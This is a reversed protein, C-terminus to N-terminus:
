ATSLKKGVWGWFVTRLTASNLKTKWDDINILHEALHAPNLGGTNMLVLPTELEQMRNTLIKSFIQPLSDKTRSSRGSITLNEWLMPQAFKGPVEIEVSLKLPYVKDNEANLDGLILGTASADELTWTDNSRSISYILANTAREIVVLDGDRVQALRASPGNGQLVNAALRGTITVRMNGMAGPFRAEFRALANKITVRRGINAARAAVRIRPITNNAAMVINNAATRLANAANIINTATTNDTITKLATDLATSLNSISNEATDVAEVSTNLQPISAQAETTASAPLASDLVNNGAETGSQYASSVQERSRNVGDLLNKAEVYATDANGILSRIETTLEATVAAREPGDPPQINGIFSELQRLVNSSNGYDYNINPSPTSTLASLVKRSAFDLVVIAASQAQQAAESATRLASMVRETQRVALEDVENLAPQPAPIAAVAWGDGSTPRTYARAVYLRAGGNDFFARVAHALYNTVEVRNNGDEFTLPDLGGYIREFQNFSTILEPEGETPGYRTPGVFGTTSTSVGEISKSRFSTEEVYVGPALYEPM